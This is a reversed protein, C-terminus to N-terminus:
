RGAMAELRALRKEAEAFAEREGGGDELKFAATQLSLLAGDLTKGHRAAEAEVAKSLAELRATSAESALEHSMARVAKAGLTGAFNKAVEKVARACALEDGRAGESAAKLGALRGRYEALRSFEKARIDEVMEVTLARVAGEREAKGAALSDLRKVGDAFALAKAEFSRLAEGDHLEARMADIKGGLRKADAAIEEARETVGAMADDTVYHHDLEEAEAFLGEAEARRAAFRVALAEVATLRETDTVDRAKLAAFENRMSEFDAELSDLAGPADRLLDRRLKGWDKFNRALEAPLQRVQGRAQCDVIFMKLEEHVALWRDYEKRMALSAPTDGVHSELRSKWDAVLRARLDAVNEKAQAWADGVDTGDIWHEAAASLPTALEMEMAEEPTKPRAAEARARRAAEAREADRRAAEEDAGGCGAVALLLLAVLLLRLGGKHMNCQSDPRKM